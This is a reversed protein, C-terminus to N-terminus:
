TRRSCFFSPRAEFSPCSPTARLRCGRRSTPSPPWAAATTNHLYVSTIDDRRLVAGKKFFRAGRLAPRARGQRLGANKRQRRRARRARRPGLAERRRGARRGGRAVGDGGARGGNTPSADDGDVIRFARPGRRGSNCSAGPAAGLTPARGKFCTYALFRGRAGCFSLAALARELSACFRRRARRGCARYRARRRSSARRRRRRPLALCRIFYSLDRAVGAQGRHGRRRACRSISRAVSAVCVRRRRAVTAAGDGVNNFGGRSM